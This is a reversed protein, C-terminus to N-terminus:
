KTEEEMVALRVWRVFSSHVWSTEDTLQELHSKLDPIGCCAPDKLGEIRRGEYSLLLLTASQSRDQIRPNFDAISLMKDREKTMKEIERNLDRVKDLAFNGIRLKAEVTNM